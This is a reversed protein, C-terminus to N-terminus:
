REHFRTELIDALARCIDVTTLIGVLKSNQVVVVSGYHKQAMTAAAERLPTEPSVTYPNGASIDAVLLAEANIGQIGSALKIDRDSLLGVVEGDRMVPLHRIKHRSMMEMAESMKQEADISYPQTTMFKQVTPEAKSM